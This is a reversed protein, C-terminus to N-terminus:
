WVLSALAQVRLFGAAHTVSHESTTAVDQWAVLQPQVRIELM